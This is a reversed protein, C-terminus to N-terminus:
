APRTNTSPANARTIALTGDGTIITARSEGASFDRPSCVTHLYANVDSSRCLAGHSWRSTTRKSVGILAEFDGCEAKFFGTQWDGKRNSRMVSTTDFLIPMQITWLGRGYSSVLITERFEDFFFSSVSPIRESGPIKRWSAGGDITGFIGLSETGVLLRNGNTPDWGIRQPQVM